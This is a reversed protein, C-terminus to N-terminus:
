LGEMTLIAKDCCLFKMFALKEYINNINIWKIRTYVIYYMRGIHDGTAACGATRTGHIRNYSLWQPEGPGYVRWGQLEEGEGRPLALCCVVNALPINM